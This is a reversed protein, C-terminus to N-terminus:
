QNAALACASASAPRTGAAAIFLRIAAASFSSARIWRDRLQRRARSIERTAPTSRQAAIAGSRLRDWGASTVRHRQRESQRGAPQHHQAFLRSNSFLGQNLNSQQQQQQYSAAVAALAAAPLNFMSALTQQNYLNSFEM